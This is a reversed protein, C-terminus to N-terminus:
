GPPGPFHAMFRNCHPPTTRSLIRYATTGISNQLWHLFLNLPVLTVMQGLNESVTGIKLSTDRFFDCNEQSSWKDQKQCPTGSKDRCQCFTTLISNQKTASHTQKTWSNTTKRGGEGATSMMRAIIIPSYSPFNDSSNRATNHVVTTWLPLPICHVCM